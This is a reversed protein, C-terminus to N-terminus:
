DLRANLFNRMCCTYDFRANLLTEIEAACAAPMELNSTATLRNIRQLASLKSPLLFLIGIEWNGKKLLLACLPLVKDQIWNGLHELRRGRRSQGAKRRAITIEIGFSSLDM